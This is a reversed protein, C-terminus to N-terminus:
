VRKDINKNVITKEKAYNEHLICYSFGASASNELWEDNFLHTIFDVVM